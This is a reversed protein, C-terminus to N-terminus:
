TFKALTTVVGPVLGKKLPQERIRDGSEGPSIFNSRRYALLPPLFPFALRICHFVYFSPEEAKM